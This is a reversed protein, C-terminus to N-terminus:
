RHFRLKRPDLRSTTSASIDMDWDKIHPHITSYSETKRSHGQAHDEVRYSVIFKRVKYSEKGM